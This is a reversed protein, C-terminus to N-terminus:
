FHNVRKPNSKMQYNSAKALQDDDLMPAGDISIAGKEVGKLWEIAREYRDIRTKYLKQPNHICFLHYVTIDIAFMLILTNRNEGTQSFIEDCNYRGSMYSRMQAVARDECVEVIAEDDRILAGLIEHHITANYDDITIFNSM